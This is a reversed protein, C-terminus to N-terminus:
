DRLGRQRELSSDDTVVKADGAIWSGDSRVFVPNIEILLTERELFIRALRDGADRLARGAPGELRAALREVCAALAAPEANAVDSHVTERPLQEVEMGGQAAMIVRIGGAQADLLFGIYAEAAGTVQQEVRVAEVVHGHVTAGLMADAHRAVEQPTAAERVIGAKGRGGAAIQGKVIWPGPPLDLRALTADRSFLRGAPVDIGHRALLEKADHELLYM